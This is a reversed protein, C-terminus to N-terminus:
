LGSAIAAELALRRATEEFGVARLGDLVALLAYPSAGAAGEAGLLHVALLATEASRGGIAAEHLGTWLVPSPLPVSLREFPGQALAIV